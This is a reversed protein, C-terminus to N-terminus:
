KVLDVFNLFHYKKSAQYFHVKIDIDMPGNVICIIYIKAYLSSKLIEDNFQTRRRLICPYVVIMKTQLDLNSCLNRNHPFSEKLAVINNKAIVRRRKM